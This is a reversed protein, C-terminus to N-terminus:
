PVFTSTPFDIETTKPRDGFISRLTPRWFDVEVSRFRGVGFVVKHTEYNIENEESPNRNRGQSSCRMDKRDRRVSTLNSHPRMSRIPDNITKRSKMSWCSQVFVGWWWIRGRRSPATGVWTQSRWWHNGLHVDIRSGSITRKYYRIGIRIDRRERGWGQNLRQSLQSLRVEDGQSCISRVAWFLVTFLQHGYPIIQFVTAHTTRRNIQFHNWAQQSKQGRLLKM